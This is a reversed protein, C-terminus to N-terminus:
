VSRVRKVLDVPRGPFDLKVRQGQIGLKELFDKKAPIDVLEELEMQDKKALQVLSEQRVLDDPSGQSDPFVLLDMLALEVSKALNELFGPHDMLDKTEENGLQVLMVMKEALDSLVKM